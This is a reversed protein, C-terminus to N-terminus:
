VSHASASTQSIALTVPATRVESSRSVLQDEVFLRKMELCKGLVAGAATPQALPWVPPLRYKFLNNEASLCPIISYILVIFLVFSIATCDFFYVNRELEVCATMWPTFHNGDSVRIGRSLRCYMTHAVTIAM